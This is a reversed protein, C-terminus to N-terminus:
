EGLWDAAQEVLASVPARGTDLRLHAQQYAALRQNYLREMGARDAALPRRGDLPVRALLRDLPADLWIVAGDGLMLARNAPDAFTGGGTAVVVGRRPLLAVLEEREVARFYAEGEQRFITPIDRRERQEIRADIDEVDWHLRAALARGVTSKGAGMFGVLYVKDATM